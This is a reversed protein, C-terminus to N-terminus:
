LGKVSPSPHGLFFKLLSTVQRSTPSSRIRLLAIPLLQDWDGPMTKGIAIKSDQEDIRSERFEPPSLGHAAELKNWARLWWGFWKLWSPQGM